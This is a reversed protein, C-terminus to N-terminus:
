PDMPWPGYPPGSRRINLLPWPGHTHDAKSIKVALPEMMNVDPGLMKDM